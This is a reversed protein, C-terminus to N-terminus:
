TGTASLVNPREGIYTNVAFRQCSLTDFCVYNRWVVGYRRGTTSGSAIVNNVFPVFRVKSVNWAPRVIPTQTTVDRWADSWALRM